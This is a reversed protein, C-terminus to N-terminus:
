GLGERRNLNALGKSQCIEWLDTLVVVAGCPPALARSYGCKSFELDFFPCLKTSFFQLIVEGVPIPEGKSRLKMYSDETIVSINSFTLTKAGRWVIFVGGGGVVGPSNCYRLMKKSFLRALFTPRITIFSVRFGINLKGISRSVQFIYRGM